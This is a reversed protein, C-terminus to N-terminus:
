FIYKEFLHITNILSIGKDKVTGIELNLETIDVSKLNTQLM